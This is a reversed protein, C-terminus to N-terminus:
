ILINPDGFKSIFLVNNERSLSNIYSQMNSEINDMFYYIKENKIDDIFKETNYGEKPLVCIYCEKDNLIFKLTFLVVIYDNILYPEYQTLENGYYKIKYKYYENNHIKIVGLGFDDDEDGYFVKRLEHVYVNSKNIQNEILTQDFSVLHNNDNIYNSWYKPHFESIVKFEIPVSGYPEYDYCPDIIESGNYFLLGENRYFEKRPLLTIIDGRKLDVYKLLENKLELRKKPNEVNYGLSGGNLKGGHQEEPLGLIRQIYPHVVIITAIPTSSEKKDQISQKLMYSIIEEKSPIDINEIIPERIIKGTSFYNRLDKELESGNEINNNKLIEKVDDFKYHRSFYFELDVKQNQLNM